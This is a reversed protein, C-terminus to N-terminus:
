DHLSHIKKYIMQSILAEWLFCFCRCFSKLLNKGSNMNFSGCQPKKDALCVKSGNGKKVWTFLFFLM